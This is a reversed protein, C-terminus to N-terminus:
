ARRYGSAASSRQPDVLESAAERMREREFRGLQWINRAVAGPDLAKGPLSMNAHRLVRQEDANLAMWKALVDDSDPLVKSGNSEAAPFTVCYEYLLRGTQAVYSVIPRHPYILYAVAPGDHHRHTSHSWVRLFGLRRYIQWDDESVCSRLLERARREARRERGPDIAALDAEFRPRALWRRFRAVLGHALADVALALAVLATIGLGIEV